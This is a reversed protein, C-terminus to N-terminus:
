AEDSYAEIIRDKKWTSFELPDGSFARITKVVDPVRGLNGAQETAIVWYTVNAYEETSNHRRLLGPLQQVLNKSVTAALLARDINEVM